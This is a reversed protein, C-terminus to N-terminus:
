PSAMWTQYCQMQLTEQCWWHWMVEQLLHINSRPSHLLCSHNMHLYCLIYPLPLGFVSHDFPIRLSAKLEGSTNNKVPVTANPATFNVHSKSSNTATPWSTRNVDQSSVLTVNREKTIYSGKSTLSGGVPPVPTTSTGNIQVIETVQTTPHLAEPMRSGVEETSVSRRVVSHDSPLENHQYNNYYTDTPLFNMIWLTSQDTVLNYVNLERQVSLVVYFFSLFVLM